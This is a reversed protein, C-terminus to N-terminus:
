RSQKDLVERVAASIDKIVLPKGIIKKIGYRKKTEATISDGFGTMIVVPFEPRKQHLQDALDLGTMQPMTLDSILLDYNDPQKNFANLADAANYCVEVKYGFTELMQQVLDAISKEDDVVLIFESGGSAKVTEAAAETSESKVVPLYLHFTTGEGPKSTVQVDGRHSRVIGHVVSLGLGTGKDVAKTTFFPEFIRDMTEEDMGPGTDSISLLAYESERLNPHIKAMLFDVKVQKLEITLTGGKEEMAQWANTCLNVIVQHIQTSDALVHSSSSEFRQKIEITAPISPRLLKLTEQVLMQLELPRKEKESQKSFLLIQEVLDKARHSANLIQQLDKFLPNTRDLRLLAMDAYGMIPALINNFDHAIGGALTGITEMKQARRLQMELKSKDEEAQKRETIDRIIGQVATGGKYDIYSTCVECEIERGSKSVATFEYVPDLQEGRKTRAVRDEILPLSRPAILKRFNFNDDQCEKYTYGFLEKFKSNIVEFKNEFLLYIADNSQEILTRFKEESEKIAAEAKKRETIDTLSGVIGATKGGQKLPAERVEVWIVKGKKGILELEYSPQAKGTEIAKLTNAFGKENIPNDTVFETWRIMAEEPDCELFERSQPSIYTIKHDSTHSYFLNTSNEVINRLKEKSEIIASEAQMRETIDRAVCVIRYVNGSRIVPTLLLEYHNNDCDCILDAPAKSRLTKQYAARVLAISDGCWFFSLPIELGSVNTVEEMNFHLKAQNNMLEVTEDPNVLFILDGASDLTLKFLKESQALKEASRRRETIDRIISTIKNSPKDYSTSVELVKDEIELEFPKLSSDQLTKYIRKLVGPLDKKSIFKGALQITNKGILDDIPVGIIKSFADNVHLIRGKTDTYIIGENVSRIITKFKAESERLQEDAQKRETIDRVIGTIRKTQKDFNTSIEFIKDKFELEFPRLSVGDLTKMIKKLIRPIQSASIFKKSLQIANRGLIDSVPIDTIKSFTNNVHLITGKEDAYLIGENVSHVIAKFKAESERLKEEAKKRENINRTAGLIMYPVGDTGIMLKANNNTFITSGDKCILETDLNVSQRGEEDGSRLSAIKQKFENIVERQSEATLINNLTMSLAEEVTYGLLNFVSPSIYTFNLNLDMTWIIDSVNEALLRYKEESERLAQEAHRRQTIDAHTGVMRLPRGQGDRAVIKGRARIWMWEGDKRKFRFEVDYKPIEGAIYARVASEAQQFDEEHVRKAWEEFTGPFEDAEYGSMTYYRPGFYTTNTILDWDWMGENAVSMALDLREENIRLENEMKKQETVDLSIGGLLPTQNEREILFKQTHYVQEKGHIDPVSEIINQYKETFTKKDHEIMKDATEKPFLELATKGLWDKAGFKDNMYKNVYLTRCDSDKIFVAAPLHDMFLSFQNKSEKLAEEINVRETIDAVIGQYHIISGNEDRRIYTRDDLWRLSGDKCIVRYPEHVFDIKDARKSFASVEHAVRELDDPHIIQGYLISGSTFEEATYGLVKEINDTVYEVPWNKENRWLFALVPSQNIIENADDRAQKLKMIDTVDRITGIIYDGDNLSIIEGSVLGRRVEGSKMRFDMAIDAIRGKRQIENRYRDRDESNVWLDMELATKGILEDRTYGTIEFTRENVDVLVGDKLRALTIVDPSSRFVKAFKEESARLAKEMERNRTADISIASVGTVENEVFIPNLMVTFHHVEGMITESFEFSEKEGSLVKDYKSKWLKKEKPSLIDLVHMGQKLDIGYASSYANKFFENFYQLRYDKDISWISEERGEILTHLHAQTTKAAAEAQRRGTIELAAEIAGTVAGQEDKVPYGKISWIRGDPTTKEIEQLQNTKIAQMVPCDLCPKSRHPWIDYCFHGRIEERSMNASICAAKNAWLIRAEKDLHIVFEALSDLILEHGNEAINLVDHDQNRGAKLGDFASIRQRMEQLEAILQSKNKNKDNVADAGDHMLEKGLILEIFITPYYNYNEVM